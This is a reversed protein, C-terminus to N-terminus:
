DNLIKIMTFAERSQTVKLNGRFKILQPQTDQQNITPRKIAGTTNRSSRFSGSQRLSPPQICLVDENMRYSAVSPADLTDDNYSNIDIDTLVSILYLTINHKVFLANSIVSLTKKIIIVSAENHM